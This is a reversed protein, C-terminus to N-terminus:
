AKQNGPLNNWYKILEYKFDNRLEADHIMKKLESYSEIIFYSGIWGFKEMFKYEKILLDMISNGTNYSDCWVIIPNYWVYDEINKATGRFRYENPTNNKEVKIMYNFIDRYYVYNRKRSIIIKNNIDDESINPIKKSPDFNIVKM